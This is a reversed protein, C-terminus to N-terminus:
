PQQSRVLIDLMERAEQNTPSLKLAHQMKEIAEPV